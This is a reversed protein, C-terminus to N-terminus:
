RRGRLGRLGRRSRGAHWLRNPVKVALVHKLRAFGGDATVRHASHESTAEGM